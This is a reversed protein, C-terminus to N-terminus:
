SLGELAESAPTVSILFLISIGHNTLWTKVYLFYESRGKGLANSSTPWCPTYDSELIEKRGDNYINCITIGDDDDLDEDHICRRRTRM